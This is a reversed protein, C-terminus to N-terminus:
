AVDASLKHGLRELMQAIRAKAEDPELRCESCDLLRVQHKCIQNEELEQTRRLLEETRGAEARQARFSILTQDAYGKTSKVEGPLKKELEGIM